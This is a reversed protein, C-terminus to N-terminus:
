EMQGQLIDILGSIMEFTARILRGYDALELERLVRTRLEIETSSANRRMVSRWGNSVRETCKRAEQLVLLHRPIAANAIGRARADSVGSVRLRLDEFFTEYQTKVDHFCQFEPLAVKFVAEFVEAEEASREHNLFAVAAASTQMMVQGIEALTAQYGEFVEIQPALITQHFPSISSSTLTFATLLYLRNM